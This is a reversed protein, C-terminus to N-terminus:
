VQQPKGIPGPAPNAPLFPRRFAEFFDYGGHFDERQDQETKGFMGRGHEVLNFVIEGVDEGRRIGWEQLLFYAMPGYTTLAYERLGELLQQGTVHRHARDRPTRPDHHVKRQTYDLAERVLGYAEGDYRSDRSAIDAVIEEFSAAQM